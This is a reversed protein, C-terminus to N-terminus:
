GCKDTLKIPFQPSASINRFCTSCRGIASECIGFFFSFPEGWVLYYKMGNDATEPLEFHFSQRSITTDLVTSTTVVCDSRM